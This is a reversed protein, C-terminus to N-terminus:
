HASRAGVDVWGYHDATACGQLILLVAFFWFVAKDM